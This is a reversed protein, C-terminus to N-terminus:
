QKRGGRYVWTTLRVPALAQGTRGLWTLEVAIRKEDAADPKTHVACNLAAGPLQDRIVQSLEIKEANDKTIEDWQRASFRELVNEVAFMAQQRQDAARRERVVWSLTPVAITMVTGLLIGSVIVEVLSMGCRHRSTRGSAAYCNLKQQVTKM